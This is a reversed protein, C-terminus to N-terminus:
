KAAKKILAQFDGIAITVSSTLDADTPATKEDVAIKSIEDPTKGTVYQAFSAAQADWEAVAGGWAVMGYDKGLENKTKIPTTLDTTIAGNKDFGVKAQVGDLACSTIKGDKMTMATTTVDLQANGAKEETVNTSSSFATQTAMKLTDGSNAGLHKANSVAKEITDVYGGLYITASSALDSGAPAKGTEDIAGERLEKVTKGVAFDALAQAQKDWEAVAGGYAVMGYKDGLENKTQPAKTIDTTLQGKADFKISTTVGDIICDRIVGKDDVLVAVMTVEYKAEGEKDEAASSSAKDIAASIALGTMLAGETVTPETTDAESNNETPCNCDEDHYIVPTGACSSLLCLCLVLSLITLFKKM